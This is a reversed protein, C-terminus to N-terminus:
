NLKAGSAKVAPAWEAVQKAVFTDFEPQSMKTLAVGMDELRKVIDPRALVEAAIRMAQEPIGQDRAQELAQEWSRRDKSDIVDLGMAHRDENLM